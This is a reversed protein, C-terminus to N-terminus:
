SSSVYLELGKFIQPRGHSREEAIARNQNQSAFHARDCTLSSCDKLGAHGRVLECSSEETSLTNLLVESNAPMTLKTTSIPPPSALCDRMTTTTCSRMTRKVQRYAIHTRRSRWRARRRRMRRKLM